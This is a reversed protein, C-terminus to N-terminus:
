LRPEGRQREGQPELLWDCAECLDRIEDEGWDQPQPVLQPHVSARCM